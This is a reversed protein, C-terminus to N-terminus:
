PRRFDPVTRSQRWYDELGIRQLLRTFRPDSWLTRMPPQFLRSTIRDADGAAPATAAWEGEGFYYGDLISFAPDAFGLAAAVQSVTLAALPNGRLYGLATTLASSPSQKGALAEATALTADVFDQRIEPPREAASDLLEIVEAPRGSYMLYALRTQWVQPHQPWHEVAVALAADAGQLDGSSWLDVLVKRDAGPILFRKSDFQRSYGAAEDWRGVNGLMDSLLFLLIPLKPDKKLAARDAQEVALWHRYVPDILRLAAIGRPERSDLRLARSAASRARIDLGPREAVPAVRKRVAFAMALGGWATASQPAAETADGLLAIAQMTSGPGQPDLADNDQLAALGREILLQAQPSPQDPRSRVWWTGLGGAAAVGVAGAGVLLKRRDLKNAPQEPASAASHRGVLADISTSLQQWAARANAGRPRTLDACQIQDFPMPLRAGDLRAQVLKALERARNAESRVWQSEVSALSWLVVVAAASELESAIVDSYDRHAPLDRDFWVSWGRRALERAVRQAFAADARAYSLFVDAL